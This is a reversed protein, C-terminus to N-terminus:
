IIQTDTQIDIEKKYAHTEKDRHRQINTCRQRNQDTATKHDTQGQKKKM